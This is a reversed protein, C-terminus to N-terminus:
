LYTDDREEAKSQIGEGSVGPLGMETMKLRRTGTTQNKNVKLDEYFEKWFIPFGFIDM